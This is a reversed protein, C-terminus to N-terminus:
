IYFADPSIKPEAGGQAKCDPAEDVGPNRDVISCM